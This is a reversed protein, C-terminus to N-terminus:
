PMEPLVPLMKARGKTSLHIVQFCHAQGRGWARALLAEVNVSLVNERFFRSLWKELILSTDHTQM